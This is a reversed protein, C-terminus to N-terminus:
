AGAMKRFFETAGKELEEPTVDKVHTLFCWLHGFPDSVTGFRDGWFAESVPQIATAGASVAKKFSSDADEVYLNLSASTGGLTKPSGQGPAPFEDSVFLISDGIKIEAHMIKSGDPTTMRNLETAGLAKKYFDIAKSADNVIIASTVTHYGEPVPKVKGAM